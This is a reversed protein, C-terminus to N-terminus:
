WYGLTNYGMHFTPLFPNLSHGGTGDRGSLWRGFSLFAAHVHIMVRYATSKQLIYWWVCVACCSGAITGDTATFLLVYRARDRYFIWMIRARAGATWEFWASEGFFFWPVCCCCLLSFSYPHIAEALPLPRNIVIQICIWVVQVRELPPHVTRLSVQQIFAM